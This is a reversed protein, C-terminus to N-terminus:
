QFGQNFWKVANITLIQSFSSNPVPQLLTFEFIELNKAPFNQSFLQCNWSKIHAANLLILNELIRSVSM